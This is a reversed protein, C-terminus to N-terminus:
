EEDKSKASGTAPKTGGQLHVNPIGFKGALAQLEAPDINGVVNVLTLQRREAALVVLGSIMKGDTKLFIGTIEDKGKVDVIPSWQMRTLKSRVSEVEAMSYAGASEFELSRIYVGQLREILKKAKADDAKGGLFGKALALTNGDLNINTTEKAKAALKDWDLMKVVDQGPAAAALTLILLFRM